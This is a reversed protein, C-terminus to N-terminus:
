AKNVRLCLNVKKVKTVRKRSGGKEEKEGNKENKSHKEEAETEKKNKEQCGAIWM